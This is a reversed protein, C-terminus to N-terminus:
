SVLQLGKLPTQEKLTFVEVEEEEEESLRVSNNSSVDSVQPGDEAIAEERGGKRGEERRGTFSFCGPHPEIM